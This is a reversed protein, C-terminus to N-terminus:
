RVTLIKVAAAMLEGVSEPIFFGLAVLAGISVVLPAHALSWPERQQIEGPSDGWVMGLIRYMFGGFVVVATVLFLSVLGMNRAEDAITITLFRGLHFTEGGSTHTALATIVSVESLFMATPPMAVLAVGAILLALATLPQAKLLGRVSGIERTGFRIHVNGAAFFALSKALAHNLLHFLAGFTGVTGGVGFGIIAVGMHEISSYAFLRKLDRQILIFCAAVGFSVLGFFILLNGAYGPSVVADVVTKNRLVAYLAVTELVGALM